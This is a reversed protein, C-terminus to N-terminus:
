PARVFWHLVKRIEGLLLEKRKRNAEFLLIASNVVLERMLEVFIVRVSRCHEPGHGAFLISM